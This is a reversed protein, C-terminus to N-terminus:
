FRQRGGESGSRQGSGPQLTRQSNNQVTDQSSDRQMDPRGGQFGSQQGNGSGPQTPRPFINQPTEPRQSGFNQPAQFGGNRPGQFGGSRPASPPPLQAIQTGKKTKGVIDESSKEAASVLSTGSFALIALSAISLKFSFKSFVLASKIWSNEKQVNTLIKM